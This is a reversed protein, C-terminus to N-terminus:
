LKKVQRLLDSTSKGKFLPVRVVRGGYSKVVDAGVIESQRYDAGKALVDPKLTEILKRPTLDNFIVVYDVASLASLIAARDEQPQLPRGPGKLARVSRDSNLGVILIDGLKKAKRLYEVHGRHLIDFCGNTFVVKRGQRKWQRRLKTLRVLTISKNM